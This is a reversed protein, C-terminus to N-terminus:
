RPVEQVVERRETQRGNRAAHKFDQPHPMVIGHCSDCFSRRSVFHLEAGAVSRVRRPHAHLGHAHPVGAGHCKFCKSEEHCAACAIVSGLGHDRKWNRGHTVQSRGRGSATVRLVVRTVSTASWPRGSAFTVCWVSSCTPERSSESTRVTSRPGTAGRADSRLSVRRTTSACPEDGRGAKRGTMKHCSECRENPIDTVDGAAADVLGLRM